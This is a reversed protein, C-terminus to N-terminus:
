LQFPPTEMDSLVRKLKGEDITYIDDSEKVRAISLYAESKFYQRLQKNIPIIQKRPEWLFPEGTKRNVISGTASAWAIMSLRYRKWLDHAIQTVQAQVFPSLFIFRKGFLLGTHYYEPVNLIGDVKLHRGMITFLALLEDGLGLGPHTQGPLPPRRSSFDKKPNQLLLWEVMLVRLPLSYLSESDVEKPTLHQYRAVFEMVIHDRDHKGNFIILKHRYPDITDIHVDLDRLGLHHGKRILGFRDMMLKIGDQSYKGLFLATTNSESMFLDDWGLDEQNFDTSIELPSLSKAIRRYKQFLRTM